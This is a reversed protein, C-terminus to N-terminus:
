RRTCPSGSLYVIEPTSVDVAINLTYAGYVNVGPAPISAWATGGDASAFFGNLADSANAILAYLRLPATPSIAIAIRSLNTTPLGGLKTWIPNAASANSTKYIGVGWFLSM